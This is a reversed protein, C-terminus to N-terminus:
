KIQDDMQNYCDAAKEEKNCICIIPLLTNLMSETLTLVRYIQTVHLYKLYKPVM